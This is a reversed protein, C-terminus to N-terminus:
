YQPTHEKHPVVLKLQDSFDQLLTEDDINLHNVYDGFDFFITPSYGDLKQLTEDDINLHNVYDGFDFFITPSYGDLKQIASVNSSNFTYRTNIEKMIPVLAKIQTCDAVG